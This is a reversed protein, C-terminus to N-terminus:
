IHESKRRWAIVKKKPMERGNDWYRGDWWCVKKTDDDYLVQILEYHINKHPYGSEIPNWDDLNRKPKASM